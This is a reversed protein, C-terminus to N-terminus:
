ICNVSIAVFAVAFFGAGAGAFFVAGPAVFVFGFPLFYTIFFASM